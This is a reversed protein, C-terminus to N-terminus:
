TRWSLSCFAPANGDQPIPQQTPHTSTASSSGSPSPVLDDSVKPVTSGIVNCLNGSSVKPLVVTLAEFQTYYSLFNTIIQLVSLWQTTVSTLFLPVLHAGHEPPWREPTRQMPDEWWAQLKQLYKTYAYPHRENYNEGLAGLQSQISFLHVSGAHQWVFSLVDHWLMCLTEIRNQCDISM